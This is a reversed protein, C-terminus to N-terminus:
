SASTSLQNSMMFALGRINLIYRNYTNQADSLAKSEDTEQSVMGIIDPFVGIQYYISLMMLAVFFSNFLIGFLARKNRNLFLWNRVFIEKFQRSFGAGRNEAFDRFNTDIDSYRGSRLKIGEEIKPLLIDDYTSVVQALTLTPNCLHPAQALKIIFDAPNQYKPMKCGLHTMMYSPIEKTPGQYLQYGDHLLLLTDFENFIEASPQHITCIITM